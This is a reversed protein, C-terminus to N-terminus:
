RQGQGAIAEGLPDNPFLSKFQQQRQVPNMNQVPQVPTVGQLFKPDVFRTYPPTTLDQTPMYNVINNATQGGVNSGELFNVGGIDEQVPAKEIVKQEPFLRERERPIIAKTSFGFQPM